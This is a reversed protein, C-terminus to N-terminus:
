PQQSRVLRVDGSFTTIDLRSGPGTGTGFRFRQANRGRPGTISGPLITLPGGTVLEGNFTSLGVEGHAEDPLRLTVDGSHTSVDVRADRALLGDFQVDGSMSEVMFRTIDRGSVSVQGSTTHVELEGRAERIRLDGSVTNARLLTGSGTSQVDGSITQVIVRGSTQDLLVDGSTSRVDVTGTLGRVEVNASLSSVVLRVGRPVDLELPQDDRRGAAYRSSPADDGGRLTLTVGTSRLEYNAGGARVSGTMGDIGRVVLRGSRVTVDVVAGGPVRVTTDRSQAHLTCPTLMAPTVALLGITACLRLSMAHQM